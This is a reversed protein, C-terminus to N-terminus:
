ASAEAKAFDRVLAACHAHQLAAWGGQPNLAIALEFAAMAKAFEGRLIFHVRGVGSYASANTPGLALAKELAALAEEDRRLSILSSGKNRWAEACEPDLALAREVSE